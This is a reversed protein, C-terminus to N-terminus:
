VCTYKRPINTCLRVESELDKLENEGVSDVDSQKICYIKQKGYLKECIAGQRVLDDLAKQVASKGHEKHMNQVVDNASYPRNTSQLYKLVAATAM